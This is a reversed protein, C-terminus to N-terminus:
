LAPGEEGSWAAGSGATSAKGGLMGEPLGAGGGEGAGSSGAGELWSQLVAPPERGGDEENLCVPTPNCMYHTRQM